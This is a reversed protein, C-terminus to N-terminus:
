DAPLVVAGMNIKGKWACCECGAGALHSFSGGTAATVSRGLIMRTATGLTGGSFGAGGAVGALADETLEGTAGRRAADQRATEFQQRSMQKLVLKEAGSLQHEAAIADPEEFLREAYADDSLARDVVRSLREVSNAAM